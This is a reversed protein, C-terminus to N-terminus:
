RRHNSEFELGLGAPEGDAARRSWTVRVPVLDRSGDRALSGRVGPAIPAATEFFVGGVSIDRATGRVVVEDLELRAGVHIPVRAGLDRQERGLKLGLRTLFRIIPRM